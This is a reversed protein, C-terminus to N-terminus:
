VEISAFLTILHLVLTSSTFIQDSASLELWVGRVFTVVEVGTRTISVIGRKGAIWV